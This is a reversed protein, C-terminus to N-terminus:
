CIEAKAGADELKNRAAEAEGRSVGEKVNKPVRDVLYKAESLGLQTLERVVKIVEIKRPGAETLVVTFQGNGLTRRHQRFSPELRTAGAAKCARTFYDFASTSEATSKQLKAGGASTKSQTSSVASAVRAEIASKERLADAQVGALESVLSSVKGDISTFKRKQMLVAAGIGLIVGLVAGGGMGLLIDKPAGVAGGAICGSIGGFSMALGFAKDLTSGKPIDQAERREREMQRLQEEISAVYARARAEIRGIEERAKQQAAWAEQNGTSELQRSELAAASRAAAALSEAIELSDSVAARLRVYDQRAVAVALQSEAQRISEDARPFHSALIKLQGQVVAAITQQEDLTEQLMRPLGPIKTALGEAQACAFWVPNVDIAKKLLVPARPIASQHAGGARCWSGITRVAEYAALGPQEIPGRSDEIAAADTAHGLAAEHQGVTTEARTLLLLAQQKMMDDRANRLAYQFDFLAKDLQNRQVNALGRTVYLRYDLPNKEVAEDLLKLGEPLMGSALCQRAMQLLEEAATSRPNKLADHVGMLVDLQMKSVWMQEIHAQDVASRLDALGDEIRGLSDVAAGAVKAVGRLADANADIAGEIRGL